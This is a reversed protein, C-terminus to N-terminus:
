NVTLPGEIRLGIDLIGELKDIGNIEGNERMAHQIKISYDGSESFVFPKDYGRYWLKNEKVDSFGKGLFEGEPNTMRYELTDKDIKGHPYNMEVILFLNNFKYDSNNRINVFLGYPNLTDPPTFRYEIIEDKHWQDPISRYEDLVVNSDCSTFCWFL